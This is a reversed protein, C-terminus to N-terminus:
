KQRVRNYTLINGKGMYILSLSEKDVHSIYWCLDSTLASIYFGRERNPNGDLNSRNKCQDSIIIEEVDWDEMGDAMEKRKNGEFILYNTKDETHQWKGQLLTSFSDNKESVCGAQLAILCLLASHFLLVLNM